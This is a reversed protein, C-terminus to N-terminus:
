DWLNHFHKCFLELGESITKDEDATHTAGAYKMLEFADIMKQIAKDWERMDKFAPCYGHKDLAKFAQLRPVIFQAITNNTNWVEEIPYVHKYSWNEEPDTFEIKKKKKSMSTNRISFKMNSSACYCASAARTVHQQAFAFFSEHCGYGM